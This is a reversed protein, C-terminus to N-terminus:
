QVRKCNVRTVLFERVLCHNMYVDLYIKDQCLEELDILLMTLLFGDIKTIQYKKRVFPKFVSNKNGKKIGLPLFM